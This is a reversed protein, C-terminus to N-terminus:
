WQSTITTVEPFHYVEKPMAFVKKHPANILHYEPMQYELGLNPNVECRLSLGMELRTWCTCCRICKTFKHGEAVKNPWEPDALAQRGHGIMDIREEGIAKNGLEPDDVSPCIVPINVAKKIKEAEPLNQDDREPLMWNLAEYCGNTLNIYEGGWGEAMKCIEIVEENSLGGPMHESCSVRFGVVFDAGLKIRCKKILERMHRTRNELSGGYMDTRLNTRPSLFTFPGYGHGVHVEIGDYGCEKYMEAQIIAIDIPKEIEEITLERPTPGKMYEGMFPAYGREAHFKVAAKPLNEEPINMPVASAAAGPFGAKTQRGRGGSVGVIQGFILGGFAHVVEALESWGRKHEHKWLAPHTDIGAIPEIGEIPAPVAPPTIILGYGGKARAAYHSLFQPGIWEYGDVFNTSCPLYVIRNKVEVNGIKIPKFLNSYKKAEKDM